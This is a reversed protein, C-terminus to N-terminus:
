DLAVLAQLLHIMLLHRAVLPVQVVAAVAM